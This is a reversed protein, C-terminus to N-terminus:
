SGAREAFSRFRAVTADEQEAFRAALEASTEPDLVRRAMQFLVNDEKWIHSRLMGIYQQASEKVVAQASADGASAEPLHERIRSLFVRGLGHEQLMVQIPGGEVPVGRAALAPFLGDEEKKHHFGDAYGSFFDLAQAVLEGPFEGGERHIARDLASIVSEICRHDQMLSTVPDAATNLM